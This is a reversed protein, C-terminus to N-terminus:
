RQYGTAIWQSVLELTAAGARPGGPPMLGARMTSLASRAYGRTASYSSAWGHCPACSHRFYDAVGDNAYSIPDLFNSLDIRSPRTRPVRRTLTGTFARSTGGATATLHHLGAETTAVGKWKVTRATGQVAETLQEVGGPSLFSLIQPFSADRGARLVGRLFGGTPMPVDITTADVGAIRISAAWKPTITLHYRGQTGDSSHVLFQWHGTSPVVWGLVKSSRPDDLGIAVETGDPDLVVVAAGFAATWRVDAKCGHVLDVGIVDTEGGSKSIDGVANGGAGLEGTMGPTPDADARRLSVAALSAVLLAGVVVVRM